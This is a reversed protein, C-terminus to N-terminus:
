NSKNTINFQTEQKHKAFALISNIQDLYDTLARVRGPRLNNEYSLWDKVVKSLEKAKDCALNININTSRINAKQLVSYLENSVTKVKQEDDKTITFIKGNNIFRYVRIIFDELLLSSAKIPDRNPVVLSKNRYPGTELINLKDENLHAMAFLTTGVMGLSRVKDLQELFAATDLQRIALGPYILAKNQSTEQVYGALDTLKDTNTAYSMPSLTDIWGNDVWTEWDQQITSLRKSRDGSYVAASIQLHPNITKLKTSINRVFDTVKQTKWNKWADMTEANMCDLTLGTEKEFLEKGVFDYGMQNIGAQFPYRIYDLQVGDVDYNTVIEELVKSVFDQVAPNAPDLWYEPQNSPLLNGNAGLLAGDYFNNSIIPGPYSAPQNILSNHRTNGVAFIWTWAHLEIDHSHAAKIAADLPDYGSILPNQAIYKSPYIPYGANITEIYVINIGAEAIKDFLKNMEMANKTSVITGRDLWLARGEVMRSPVSKAYAQIVFNKAVNYASQAKAYQKDEFYSKFLAKEVKTMYLQEQINSLPISLDSQILTSIAGEAANQLQNIERLSEEYKKNTIEVSELSTLGPVLSNIISRIAFKNFTISGDNGWMWSIYAGNGSRSVATTTDLNYNDYKAISEANNKLSLPAIKCSPPFSNETPTTKGILWEVPTTRDLTVSPTINVDMFSALADTTDSNSGPSSVILKGGKLSFLKLNELISDSLKLGLPIIIIKYKELDRSSLADKEKIITYKLSTNNMTNIVDNFLENYSALNQNAYETSSTESNLVAISSEEARALQFLCSYILCIFIMFLKKAMLTRDM